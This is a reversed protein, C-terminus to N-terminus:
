DNQKEYFIELNPRDLPIKPTDYTDVYTIFCKTGDDYIKNHYKTCDEMTEFNVLLITTYVIKSGTVFSGTM